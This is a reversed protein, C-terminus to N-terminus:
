FGINTKTNTYIPLMLDKSIQYKRPPAVTLPRERKGQSFPISSSISTLLHAFAQGEAKGTAGENEYPSLPCENPAATHMISLRMGGKFADAHPLVTLGRSLCQLRPLNLLWGRPPTQGRKM